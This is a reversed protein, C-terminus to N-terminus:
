AYSCRGGRRSSQPRPEPHCAPRQQGGATLHLSLMRCVASFCFGHQVLGCGCDTSELCRQQRLRRLVVCGHALTLTGTARPLWVADRRPTTRCPVTNNRSKEVEASCDLCLASAQSLLCQCVPLGDVLAIHTNPLVNPCFRRQSAAYLLQCGLRHCEAVLHAVTRLPPPLPVHRM